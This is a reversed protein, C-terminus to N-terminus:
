GADLFTNIDQMKLTPLGTAGIVIRDQGSTETDWFSATITGSNRGVLGRVYNDVQDTSTNSSLTNAGPNLGVRDVSSNPEGNVRGASYCSTITGHNEGVLGGVYYKLGNVNMNELGLSTLMADPNTQGFLGLHYHGRINLNRIIHSRGDFHGSFERGHFYVSTDLDPAIVARDFSYGALDIDAILIFHKDYDKPKNGLGILDQSTAIQYPDEVTGNGGSYASALSVLCITISIVMRKM